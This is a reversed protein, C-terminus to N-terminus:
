PTLLEFHPIDVLRQDTMEWDGDWDGGWRIKVGMSHATALFLGALLVMQDHDKTGTPWPYLDVACSPHRNHRSDPWRLHSSGERFYKEQTLEDRYGEIVSFDYFKIVEHCIAKLDEHCTDLHM